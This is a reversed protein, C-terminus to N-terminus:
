EKQFILLQGRTLPLITPSPLFSLNENTEKGILLYFTEAQPTHQKTWTLIREVPAYARSVIDCPDPFSFQHTIEIVHANKLHLKAVIYHLFALKKKDVETLYIERTPLAIAIPIGPLGAGTGIDFLPLNGKLHPVIELSNMLHDTDFSETTSRGILNTRQNWRLLEAKYLSLQENQQPSLHPFFVDRELSNKAM